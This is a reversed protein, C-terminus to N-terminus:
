ILGSLKLALRAKNRIRRYRSAEEWSVTYPLKTLLCNLEREKLTTAVVWWMRKEDISVDTPKNQDVCLDGYTRHSAANLPDGMHVCDLQKRGRGRESRSATILFGRKLGDSEKKMTVLRLWASQVADEADPKSVGRNMLYTVTYKRVTNIEKNMATSLTSM